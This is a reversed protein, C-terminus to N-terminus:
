ADDRGGRIVTLQGRAGHPREAQLRELPTERSMDAALMELAHLSKPVHPEAAMREELTLMRGGSGKVVRLKTAVTV